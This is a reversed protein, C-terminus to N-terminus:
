FMGDANPSDAQIPQGLDWFEVIRDGEFRFIHVVAINMNGPNLSVPSHTAVIDGEAIVHKIDIREDPYEAHNDIMAQKLAPFGAASYQNHHKGNMAVHKRYGEDIRGAVVLKLFDVVIDKRSQQSNDQMAIV